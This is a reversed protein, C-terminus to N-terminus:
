VINHLSIFKQGEELLQKRNKVFMKWSECPKTGAIMKETKAKDEGLMKILSSTIVDVDEKTKVVIDHYKINNINEIDDKKKYVVTERTDKKVVWKNNEFIVIENKTIAPPKLFTSNAPKSYMNVGHFKTELPDLPANSEFLFEHTIHHYHYVISQKSLYM